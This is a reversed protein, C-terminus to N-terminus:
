RRPRKSDGMGEDGGRGRKRISGNGDRRDRDDGRREGGNKRDQGWEQGDRRDMEGWDRSTPEDRGMRRLPPGGRLDRELPPGRIDREPGSGGVRMNAPAGDNRFRERPDERPLGRADDRVRMSSDSSRDKGPSRSRHRGSRREADRGEEWTPGHRGGRGHGADGDMQRTPTPRGGNGPFLDGLHSPEQRPLNPTPPGSTSPSAMPRGGRGRISAGQGARPPAEPTNAQQLVNQINSFRKDSRNRENGFSPGTPPGRHTPSPGVPSTDQNNPGRPVLPPVTVPPPAQRPGRIPEGMNSPASDAGPAGTGQIAKLRDPHIGATEGSQTAPAQPTASSPSSLPGNGSAGRVSTGSRTQRDIAASPSIPGQSLPPPETIIQPQPVSVNRGVRAPPQSNGNLLRPGSPIDNRANLRGYSESQRGGHSPSQKLRGHDPNSPTAPPASPRMSERFRDNPHLSGAAAPRETRPGTPAHSEDYRSTLRDDIPRRSNEPPLRENRRGEYPPMRDDSRAPSQGRSSRGSGPYQGQRSAEPHRDSTPLIQTVAARDPHQSVTSRPPPMTLDNGQLRGSSFDRRAQDQDPLPRGNPLRGNRNERAYHEADRQSPGGLRDNQGFNLSTTSDGAWRLERHDRLGDHSREGDRELSRPPLGAASRETARERHLERAADPNARELFRLDRPHELPLRDNPKPPIRPDARGPQPADPRSPLNHQAQGNVSNSSTSRNIDPKPPVSPHQLSRSTPGDVISIPEVKPELTSRSFPPGPIKPVQDSAHVRDEKETAQPARLSQESAETQPLDEVTSGTSPKTSETADGSANAKAGTDVM